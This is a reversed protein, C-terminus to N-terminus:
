FDQPTPQQAPTGRSRARTAAVGVAVLGLLLGAAGLVLALNAHGRARDAADAANAASAPTATVSPTPAQGVTGAAVVSVPVRAEETEGGSTMAVTFTLTGPQAAQELEFGYQLWTKPALAGGTWTVTAGSEAAKWGAPSRTAEGIEAGEPVTVAIRTIPSDTDNAASLTLFVPKGTEVTAPAIEEHALAAQATAVLLLLAGTLTGVTRRATSAM